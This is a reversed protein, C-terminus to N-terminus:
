QYLQRYEKTQVQRIIEFEHDSYGAIVVEDGEESLISREDQIEIEIIFDWTRSSPSITMSSKQEFEPQM